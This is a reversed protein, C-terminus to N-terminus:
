LAVSVSSPNRSNKSSYPGDSSIQSITRAKGIMRTHRRYLFTREVIQSIRHLIQARHAPSIRDHCDIRSTIQSQQLRYKKPCPKRLTRAVTRPLPKRSSRTHRPFRHNGAAARPTRSRSRLHADKGLTQEGRNGIAWNASGPPMQVVFSKATSNWVVGWGMTWGHGSGMAGRNM